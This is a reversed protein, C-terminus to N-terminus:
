RASSNEPPPRRCARRWRVISRGLIDQPRRCRCGSARTATGGSHRRMVGARAASQEAAADQGRGDPSGEFPAAVVASLVVVPEVQGDPRIDTPQITRGIVPPVGLFNFANGSLLVGNFSQPAFEGTLSPEM